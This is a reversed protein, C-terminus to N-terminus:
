ARVALAFAGDLTDGHPPIIGTTYSAPLHDHYYGGLGGTLCLTDGSQFGLADLSQALYAAGKRLIQLAWPDSANVIQPALTAYDRPKANTCFTVIANPDNDFGALIERTLPTHPALGDHCLLVQELAARGLWAGSAHDSVAFGWGGVFRLKGATCAAAITGTGIGLLYGDLAGLAGAVATPRDDSVACRGYPMTRAIERADQQTMVGALGVHATAKSLDIDPIESATRAVTTIVNKIALSRDTTANAPGGTARAIIGASTGIAVRCGTGGGDVGIFYKHDNGAM